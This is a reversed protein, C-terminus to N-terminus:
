DHVGAHCAFCEMKGRTNEMKSAKLHCGSCEQVEESPAFAAVFKGEAQANLLLVVKRAVSATLQGCRDDREKSFAKHGSAKTWAAISAHCIVSNAVSPTIEYRANKPVFDPDPLPSREAWTYLEDIIPKPEPSILQITYAAGNMAGCLTAWGNVGGSGYRMAATPYTLYPGGVKESLAQIISETVGYQCRGAYFLDYALQGVYDADLPEYPLPNHKLRGKENVDPKARTAPIAAAAVGHGLVVTAGVGGAIVGIAERRSISM